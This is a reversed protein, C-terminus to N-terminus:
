PRSDPPIGRTSRWDGQVIFGAWYAPMRWRPDKWMSLQAARLAAAPTLGRELLAGYFRDMLAATARDRVNWLSAVVQSAGAYMFGRAVGILGEGRVDQGLATQCGSLVVVDAALRLKFIDHLRLFGEIPQGQRDVLSLVIGSLEPHRTDLLAHTAFHVIRFDALTPSMALERTAEFGLATLSQGASARAAIALAEERSYPLREFVTAGL